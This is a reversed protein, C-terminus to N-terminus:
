GHENMGRLERLKLEIDQSEMLSSGILFADAGAQELNKVQERTHIGSESIILSDPFKKQILPILNLTTNLNVKLTELNRNNIGIIKPDIGQIKNLDDLDHIEVLSELDLSSVLDHLEKLNEKSLIKVILLVVDAGLEIGHYIQKPHFIFDKLLVPLKVSNRAKKLIDFSGNFYDPETLVSIGVAGGCEMEMAVEEIKKAQSIKGRSPSAFKIESIISTTRSNRINHLLSHEEHDVQKPFEYNKIFSNLTVKRNELIEDLVNV